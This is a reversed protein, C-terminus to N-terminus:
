ATENGTITAIVAEQAANNEAYIGEIEENLAEVTVDTEQYLAEVEINPDPPLVPGFISECIEYEDLDAFDEAVFLAIEEEEEDIEVSDLRWANVLKAFNTNGSGAEESVVPEDRDAM